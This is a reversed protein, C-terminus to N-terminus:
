RTAPKNILQQILETIKEWVFKLDESKTIFFPKDTVKLMELDNLQNGVGITVLKSTEAAYLGKLISVAKAKTHNGFLSYYKGGYAFNLGEDKLQRLFDECPKSRFAFPESYERTKASKALTLSLGTEAALEEVSMDGFGKVLCDCEKRAKEFKSRIVSYSTGLEIVGYHETQRSNPINSKFYGIPIFIAAGNEVVFPDSLGLQKRYYELEVRTKSSCLVIPIQQSVLFSLFTQTEAFSYKDDILTGDVDTFIVIRAPDNKM